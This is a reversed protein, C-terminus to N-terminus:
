PGGTNGGMSLSGLLVDDAVTARKYLKEMARGENRGRPQGSKLNSMNIEMSESLSHTYTHPCRGNKPSLLGLVIFAGQWRSGETKKFKVKM